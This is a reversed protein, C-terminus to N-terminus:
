PTARPFIRLSQRAAPVSIAPRAAVDDLEDSPTFYQTVQLATNLQLLSDGYDNNPATSNSADFDGNGTLVYLHNSADVAPAGGSM